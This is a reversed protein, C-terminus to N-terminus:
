FNGDAVQLVTLGIENRWMDVVRQRDDLVFEIYFQDRVYKNFLERKIIRDDRKDGKPRMLLIFDKDKIYGLNDEIWKETVERHVEDRGSCFIIMYDSILFRNIIKVVPFNVVDKSFDRDYPDRGPFLATTGDIDVIIAHLLDSNQQLGVFEPKLYQEYFRTIVKIGVPHPRLADRKICEEVPTDVFISEFTYFRRTQKMEAMLTNHEEVLRKYEAERKPNLNVNDVVINLNEAFAHSILTSRMSTILGEDKSDHPDGWLMQRMDDNNIRMWKSPKDAIIKRATETKGSAPLGKIMIFRPM